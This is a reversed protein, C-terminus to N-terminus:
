IVTKAKCKSKCFELAKTFQEITCGREGGPKFLNSLGNFFSNTVVTALQEKPIKMSVKGNKVTYEIVPVADSECSEGSLLQCKLNLYPFQKAILKWENYVDQISPYKGINYNRTGINGNWDCWGHPGGIWSSVIQSNYLYELEIPNVEETKKDQYNWVADWTGPADKEVGLKKRIAVNESDYGAKTIKIDYFVENLKASFIRDNSSFRLRDTRVIIEQAQEKTVPTGVVILCPWKPLGLKFFDVNKM